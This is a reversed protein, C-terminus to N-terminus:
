PSSIDFSSCTCLFSLLFSLLLWLFRIRCVFLFLCRHCRMRLIFLRRLFPFVIMRRLCRDICLDLVLLHFFCGLLACSFYKMWSFSSKTEVFCSIWIISDLLPVFACCCGLLRLFFCDDQFVITSVKGLLM